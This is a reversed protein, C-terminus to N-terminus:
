IGAGVPLLRGDHIRYTRTAQRTAEGVQHSAIIVTTGVKLFEGVMHDVMSMGDTDLGSYPEDMLVLELPRLRLATLSLRRRMGTSYTRVRQSRAQSLGAASLLDDITGDQSPAGTLRATFRLNEAATLDDYLTGRSSLYGVRERIRDGASSLPLGCITGTGSSPRLLTALIRLLTTKGAGNAGTLVVSSGTAVTFDVGRLVRKRSFRRYVDRLEVAPQQASM